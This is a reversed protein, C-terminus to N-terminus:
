SRGLGGFAPAYAALLAFALGFATGVLAAAALSTRTRTGLRPLLATVFCAAGGLAVLPAFWTSLAVETAWPLGGLPAARTSIGAGYTAILDPRMRFWFLGGLAIAIAELLGLTLLVVHKRM